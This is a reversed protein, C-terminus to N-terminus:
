IYNIFNQLIKLGAKSSKEPHFQTGWINDKNVIATIPLSYDTTAIIENKNKPVFAYSHVFYFDIANPIGMLLDNSNDWKVTNWGMHPIREKCGLDKLNVVEGSILSLGNKMSKDGELLGEYGCEALLQMGLCIGLIPKKYILTANLIEQTWGFNDLIVKSRTFNGVGPFILKDMKNINIPDDVVEVSANLNKLAQYVSGINGLGYKIIGIKM